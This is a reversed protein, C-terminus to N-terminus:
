DQLWPAAARTHGAKTAPDMAEYSRAMMRSRPNTAFVDLHDRVFTWYLGDWAECWDGKPVDSMRRLYASGSVYPKTTIAPGAAFQSMAYVNPVMVWDYADVFLAMFWEYVEDPDIRLLSMANGVVMLREIHHCWGDDLVRRVVLDVPDLGTTADWWGPALSRTHALHNATRMRRGHTVYVGRMYERWGILQRVFGELSALPVDHEDAHDLVRGLVQAPSLLGINLAPTLVSHFVTASRTTIADEYPGFTDLRETVFEELMAEAEAHDTPWAFSELRGPADPFASRVWAIADDVEAVREPRTVDPVDVSRPLKKRNEEDFSWKGGVPQDGDVLVDLRTRQWAYFHQMRPRKGGLQERVQERTTLFNPSELWELELGVDAATADLDQELWDDVVDFVSVAAAGELVRALAARSTTRGDTRVRVVDHGASELRQAFREMSARHLVLKQAHFAYQRFLLDHEVLVFSTGAPVDLHEVFLQHPLVLRVARRRDDM